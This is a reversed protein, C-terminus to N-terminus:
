GWADTLKTNGSMLRKGYHQVWEDSLEFGICNRDLNRCAELTTGSGLFPDLVVDDVNSSVTVIQEILKVPKENQHVAATHPVRNFKWVDPIRKGNIKRRGKNAYIIMEYQKGFQAELDGATWNNKVWIIINKITFYKNIESKFLEVTDPSCFCYFASDPKLVRYSESVFQKILEENDIDNNIPTVFSHEDKNIILNNKVNNSKRHNTKYNINYPPDTVILDISDSEVLKFLEICDGIEYEQTTNSM